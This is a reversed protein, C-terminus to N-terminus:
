SASARFFAAMIKPLKSSSLGVDMFTTSSRMSINWGNLELLGDYSIETIM